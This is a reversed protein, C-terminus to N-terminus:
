ASRVYLLGSESSEYAGPAAKKTESLGSDDPASRPVQILLLSRGDNLPAPSREQHDGSKAEHHHSPDPSHYHM